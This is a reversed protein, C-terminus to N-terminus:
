IKVTASSLAHRNGELLTGAQALPPEALIGGHDRPAHLRALSVSVEGAHRAWLLMAAAAGLDAPVGRRCRRDRPPLVRAPGRRRRARRWLQPEPRSLDAARRSGQDASRASGGA